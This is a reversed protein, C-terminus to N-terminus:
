LSCSECTGLDEVVNSEVVVDDSNLVVGNSTNSNIYYRTKCGYKVMELYHNVMQTSSVKATGQVNAYWDASITQDTWKQVVAYFKIMSSTSTDYAMQYRNKLRTADPAVWYNVQTDNTKMINLKRVPYLGNTTGASQSSSEGPMHAAVVSNRIGGNEIIAARLGDWDRRNPVTVLTDVRKEYTDLPLWGQPWKTKHIWPANGLEKGLRLSANILHWMHTEAMEHVFNLGEQDDYRKGHKAMYHAVGM